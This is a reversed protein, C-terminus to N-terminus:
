FKIKRLYWAMYNNSMLLLAIQRIHVRFNVSRTPHKKDRWFNSSKNFIYSNYIYYAYDFHRCMVIIHAKSYEEYHKQVSMKSIKDFMPCQFGTSLITTLWRLKTPVYTNIKTSERKKKIFSSCLQLKLRLIIHM